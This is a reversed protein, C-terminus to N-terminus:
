ILGLYAEVLNHLRGHSGFTAIGLNFNNKLASKSTSAWLILNLSEIHAGISVILVLAWRLAGIESHKKM